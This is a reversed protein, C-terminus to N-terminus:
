DKGPAEPGDDNMERRARAWVDYVAKAAAGLGAFLGVWFFVPETDLKSDLYRGGVIGIIVSLGMELGVAAFRGSQKLM